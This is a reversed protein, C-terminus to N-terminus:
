DETRNLDSSNVVVPDISRFETETAQYFSWSKLEVCTLAAWKPASGYSNPYSGYAMTDLNTQGLITMPRQLITHGSIIRGLNPNPVHGRYQNKVIRITKDHNSLEAKFFPMFKFRGWVFFDGDHSQQTALDMVKGPSSLIDDSVEFGPPIEAHIIHTKVPGDITIIFPLEAVIDVLELLQKTKETREVRDLESVYTKQAERDNEWEHIGWMGGNRFWFQGMYGGKFAELMMQEHNALVCHFWPEKLLQLCLFSDPGRDVLDGVSFLRDKEGDFKLNDLLNLLVSYAGHLDGIVFDRGKKNEEFTKIPNQM